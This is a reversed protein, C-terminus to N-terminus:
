NIISKLYELATTLKVGYKEATSKADPAANPYHAMISPSSRSYTELLHNLVKDDNYSCAPLIVDSAAQSAGPIQGVM